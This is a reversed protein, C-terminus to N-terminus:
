SWTYVRITNNETAHTEAAWAITQTESTNQQTPEASTLKVAPFRFGLGRGSTDTFVVLLAVVTNNLFLTTRATATLYTRLSGDCVITGPVNDIGKRQTAITAVSSDHAIRASLDLVELDTTALRVTTATTKPSFVPYITDSVPVGTEYTTGAVVMETGRFQFEGPVAASGDAFNWSLLTPLLGEFREFISADLHAQEAALYEVTTGNKMRRGRQVKLSSGDGLGGEVTIQDTGVVTVTYYGVLADASTRVRVVDGVEIGTEIGTAALVQSTATAGTVQTAAATPAGSKITARVLDEFASDAAVYCMEIPLTGGAEGGIPISEGAQYDARSVESRGFQQTFSLAAGRRKNVVRKANALSTGTVGAQRLLSFRVRDLSPVTM